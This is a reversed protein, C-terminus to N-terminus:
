KRKIRKNIRNIEKKNIKDKEKKKKNVLEYEGNDKKRLTKGKFIELNNNM